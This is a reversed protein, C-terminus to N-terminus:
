DRLRFTGEYTKGPAADSPSEPASRQHMTAWHEAVVHDPALRPLWRVTAITLAILVGLDDMQGIGILFDPIPDIPSLVYLAALAPIVNKVWPVRPDRLLRWSLRIQDVMGPQLLEDAGSFPSRVRPDAM